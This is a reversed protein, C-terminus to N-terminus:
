EGRRAPRQCGPRWTDRPNASPRGAFGLSVAEWAHQLGRSDGLWFAECLAAGIAINAALTRATSLVVEECTQCGGLPWDTATGTHHLRHSNCCLRRHLNDLAKSRPPEYSV